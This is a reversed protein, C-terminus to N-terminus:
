GTGGVSRAFVDAAIRTAATRTSAGIRGLDISTGTALHRDYPLHIVTMGGTSLMAQVQDLDAYAHPTHTVLAIVTRSLLAGYDNAAFWDLASRASLAGDVTAPTVLVQAHATALIGRQLGGLIGAGCDIVSASFYRGLGGFAARFTQLDLEGGLRGGTTSSLVWLRHAAQSLYRSTEEWSRPHVAALEHMSREATVGLRLSLSGLGPDADAALVRDERHEAIVAGLLAALTTKGAGGRVSVVAIQRCTSVPRALRGTVDALERLDNAATAGVAKRVGQGMRRMLPDGHPNRRVLSDATLAEGGAYDQVVYEQDAFPAPEAPYSGAVGGALPAQPFPPADPIRPAETVQPPADPPPQEPAGIVHSDQHPVDPWPTSRPEPAAPQESTGIVSGIPVAQPWSSASAPAPAASNSNASTAAPSSTQPDVPPPAPSREPAPAKPAPVPASLPESPQASWPRSAVTAESEPTPEPTPEPEAAPPPGPSEAESTAQAPTQGFTKPPIRFTTTPNRVVRDVRTAYPDGSPGADSVDSVDPDTTASQASPPVSPQVAPAADHITPDPGPDHVTVNPDGSPMQTSVPSPGQGFAPAVAPASAPAPGPSLAAASVHVPAAAPAPVAAPGLDGPPPAAAPPAAPAPAAPREPGSGYRDTRIPQAAPATMPQPSDFTVLGAGPAGIDRLVGRQWDRDSM